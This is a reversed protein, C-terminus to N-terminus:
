NTRSSITRFGLFALLPPILGRKLGNRAIWCARLQPTDYVPMAVITTTLAEAAAAVSENQTAESPPAAQAETSTSQPLKPPEDM